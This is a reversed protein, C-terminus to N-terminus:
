VELKPKLMGLHGPLIQKTKRTVSGQQLQVFGSVKQVLITTGPTATWTIQM